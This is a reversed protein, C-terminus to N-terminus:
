HGDPNRRHPELLARLSATLGPANRVAIADVRDTITFQDISDLEELVAEVLRRDADPVSDPDEVLASLELVHEIL